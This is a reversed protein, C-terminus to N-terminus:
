PQLEKDFNTLENRENQVIYHIAIALYTELVCESVRLASALLPPYMYRVVRENFPVLDLCFSCGDTVRGARVDGYTFGCASCVDPFVDAQPLTCRPENELMWECLMQFKDFNGELYMCQDRLYMIMLAVRTDHAHKM